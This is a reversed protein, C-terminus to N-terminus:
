NLLNIRLGFKQPLFCITDELFSVLKECVVKEIIKLSSLYFSFRVIIRWSDKNLKKLYSKLVPLIDKGPFVAEAFSQNFVNALPENICKKLIKFWLGDHRTSNKPQLKAVIEKAEKCKSQSAWFYILNLWRLVSVRLLMKIWPASRNNTINVFFTIFNDSITKLDEIISNGVILVLKHKNSPRNRNM